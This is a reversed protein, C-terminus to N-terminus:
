EQPVWSGVTTTATSWAYGGSWAYSGSWAYGGSWAYSCSWAYGGSWAYSGSWAYGDIDMVYYKGTADRNARGGYHETGALDNAINLGQNACGSGTGYVAAYANVQGAGQQFISYALEGNQTVAPQAAAMLRCKVDNPMLRPRRQLMLAVIGSTVVTAQSTGSMSFYMRNLYYEPHDIALQMTPGMLGMMHGGPAVVDPKVFGEVTPGAASFSTVIDDTLNDPTYNDSSAGVTIIYPVNGPVGITMASPGTNGAAAVVVIGAQWARMVAQNLPDDWYYSQPPASFSLNLVRIRYTERNTVVWDIGRIVDEYRGVGQADFAKVVVLRADPAIGNYKRPFDLAFRKKSLLISTIHTGHGNEDTTGMVGHRNLQNTIADYQALIRTHGSIDNTLPPTDFFGTDLVAVTVGSGVIGEEHLRDAGVITPYYTDRVAGAIALSRAPYIRSIGQNRRLVNLQAGSVRAGVADIIKLESTVTGGVAQVLRAITATDRGQIIVSLAPQSVSRALVTSCLILSTLVLALRLQLHMQKHPYIKM